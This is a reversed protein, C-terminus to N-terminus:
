IDLAMYAKNQLFLFPYFLFYTTTFINFLTHFKIKYYFTDKQLIIIWLEYNSKMELIKVAEFTMMIMIIIIIQSFYQIAMFM